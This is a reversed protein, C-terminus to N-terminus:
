VCANNPFVPLRDAQAQDLCGRNSMGETPGQTAATGWPGGRTRDARAPGAEYFAVACSVVVITALVIALRRRTVSANQESCGEDPDNRAVNSV